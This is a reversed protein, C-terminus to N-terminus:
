AEVARPGARGRKQKSLSLRACTGRAGEHVISRASGDSVGVTRGRCRGFARARAELRGPPRALRCSRFLEASRLWPLDDSPDHENDRACLFEDEAKEREEEREAEEEDDEEAVGVSQTM